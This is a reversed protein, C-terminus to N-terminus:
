VTILTGTNELSDVDSLGTVGEILAISVFSDAGGDADIMLTSDTGNDTISIFDSIADALPDYGSLVDAINISDGDTISFDKIVDVDNFATASRFGFTDAGSEGYLTDLGDDGYLVDDGAGAYIEDDPNAIQIGYIVDDGDKGYIHDKGELGNIREANATGYLTDNTTTGNIEPLADVTISVNGTVNGGYIDTVQYSFSDLGTYGSAGNYTFNTSCAYM